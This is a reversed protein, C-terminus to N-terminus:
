RRKRSVEAVFAAVTEALSREHGQFSHDAGPVEAFRTSPGLDDLARQLGVSPAIRDHQGAIFLKPRKDRLVEASQVASIPPAISVVSRAARYSKLGNLVVSAGFSYGAIAVDRGDVGPWRRLVQLAARFDDQEGEGNDFRGESQGVGRFNFRLSAFGVAAAARCVEVVVQNHMNGGLMPHPHSMLLAAVPGAANQPLSIVGELSLKGSPFGIATARM